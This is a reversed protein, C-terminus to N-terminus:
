SDPRDGELSVTKGGGDLKALHASRRKVVLEEIGRVAGLEPPGVGVQRAPSEALIVTRRRSEARAVNLKAQSDTELM